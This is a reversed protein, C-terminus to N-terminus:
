RRPDHHARCLESEEFAFQVVHGNNRPSSGHWHFDAAYGDERLADILMEAARKNLTDVRGRTSNRPDEWSRIQTRAQDVLEAFILEAKGAEDRRAQIDSPEPFIRNLLKRM